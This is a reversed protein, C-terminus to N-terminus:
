HLDLATPEGCSVHLLDILAVGFLGMCAATGGMQTHTHSLSFNGFGKTRTNRGRHKGSGVEPQSPELIASLLTGGFGATIYMLAIRFWGVRRELKIGVHLQLICVLSIHLVGAHLYSASFLRFWQNPTNTERAGMGCIQGICKVQSCLEAEAHYFGNLFECQAALLPPHSQARTWRARGFLLRVRPSLKAAAM